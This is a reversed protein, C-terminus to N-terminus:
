ESVHLFYILGMGLVTCLTKDLSRMMHYASQRNAKAAGQLKPATKRKKKPASRRESAAPESFWFTQYNTLYEQDEDSVKEGGEHLWFAIDPM